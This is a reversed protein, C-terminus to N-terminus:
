GSDGRIEDAAVVEAGDEDGQRRGRGADAGGHEAPQDEEGTM